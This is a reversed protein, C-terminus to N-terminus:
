DYERQTDMNIVSTRKEAGRHPPAHACRRNRNSIAMHNSRHRGPRATRPLVPEIQQLLRDHGAEKDTEAFTFLEIEPEM